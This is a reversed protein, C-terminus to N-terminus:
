KADAVGCIAAKGLEQGTMSFLRDVASRHEPRQMQELMEDFERDLAQLDVSEHGILSEYEKISLVVAEPRDYKTIFVRGERSARNLVQGFNNQAETSTFSSRVPYTDGPERKRPKANSM